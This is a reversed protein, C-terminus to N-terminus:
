PIQLRAWERLADLLRATRERDLSGTAYRDYRLLVAYPTLEGLAEAEPPEPVGHQRVLDVLVALNHTRRFEVARVALAAKLYKEAAQQAHFGTPADAASPAAALVRYAALDEDAMRFFLRALDAPQKM